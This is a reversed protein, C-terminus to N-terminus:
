AYEILPISFTKCATRTIVTRIRNHADSAALCTSPPFRHYRKTCLAKGLYGMKLLITKGNKINSDIQSSQLCNYLIM